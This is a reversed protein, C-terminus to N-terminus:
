SECRDAKAATLKRRTSGDLYLRMLAGRPAAMPLSPAMLHVVFKRQSRRWCRGVTLLTRSAHRRRHWQNSFFPVDCVAVQEGMLLFEIFTVKIDKTDATQLVKKLDGYQMMELVVLWPRYDM